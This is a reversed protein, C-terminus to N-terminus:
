SLSVEFGDRRSSIARDIVLALRDDTGKTALDIACGTDWDIAIGNKNAHILLDVVESPNGGALYHVEISDLCVNLENAEAKRYACILRSAPSGRMSM